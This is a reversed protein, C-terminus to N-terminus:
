KFIGKVNRELSESKIVILLEEVAALTAAMLLFIMVAGNNFMIYIPVGIFLLLGVAKNAYTHLAAFAQFKFYGVLISLLKIVVIVAIWFFGWAPIEVHLLVLNVIIVALVLDGLSDLIAGIKSIANFKRAM